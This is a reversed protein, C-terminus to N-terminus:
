VTDAEHHNYGSARGNTLYPVVLTSQAGALFGSPAFPLTDTDSNM